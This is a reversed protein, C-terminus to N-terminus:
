LLHPTLAVRVPLPEIKTLKKMLTIDLSTDRPYLFETPMQVPHLNETPIGLSSMAERHYDYVSMADGAVHVIGVYASSAFLTIAQAVQNVEMPSKIM